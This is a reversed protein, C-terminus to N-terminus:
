TSASNPSDGGEPNSSMGGSSSSAKPDLLGLSVMKEYNEPKQIADLLVGPDNDFEKRVEAPLFMFAEQASALREMAEHYTGLGMFDGYRAQIASVHDVLGTNRFRRVIHNIDCIQKHHQETLEPEGNHSQVRKSGNARRGILNGDVLTYVGIDEFSM